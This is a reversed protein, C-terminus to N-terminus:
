VSFLNRVSSKFAKRSSSWTYFMHGGYFLHFSIQKKLDEPLNMLPIIRGSSFYPTVLDFVGHSICVKMSPNLSMASRLDDTSGINVDFFHSQTDTKWMKNAHLNILRYKRECNLDLFNRFLSHIGHSFVHEIGTLTPDEGEFEDRNPFPDWSTQSSDYMGCWKREEQLLLRCFQFFDLRGNGKQLKRLPVGIFDSAKKIIKKQTLSAMREGQVLYNVMENVAFDEVPKLFSRLNSLAPMKQNAFYNSKGHYAATAAMSPLIDLWHLVDYDDSIFANIELCPSIIIVGSLGIGYEKQLKLSLKAARFGGYSEGAIFVPSSWRKYKSLFQQIFESLSELDRNLKYFEHDSHNQKNEKKTEHPLTFDLEDLARSYGTGVPDVFVLDTMEIWSEPNDRLRAPPPLAEGKQGFEVTKPGLAGIHLYVSAAGPGGNFVFVIPRLKDRKDEKRYYTYFIDAIPKEKKRILMWDAHVSCSIKKDKLSVSWTKFQGKPAKYVQKDEKIETKETKKSQNAPM